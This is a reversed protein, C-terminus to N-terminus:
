CSPLAPGRARRCPRGSSRARPPAPLACASWGPASGSSRLRPPRRDAPMARAAAAAEPVARPGATVQRAQAGTRQRATAQRAMRPGWRRGPAAPESSAGAESPARERHRCSGCPPAHPAARRGPRGARPRGAPEPGAVLARELSAAFRAGSGRHEDRPARPADRPGARGAGSGDRGGSRGARASRRGTETRPPRVLGPSVRGWLRSGFAPTGSVAGGAGRALPGKCPQM